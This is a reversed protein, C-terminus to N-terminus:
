IQNIITQTNALILDAKADIRDLRSCVADICNLPACVTDNSQQITFQQNLYVKRILSSIRFPCQDDDTAKRVGDCVDYMIEDITLNLQDIHQLLHSTFLSNRGNTSKDVAVTNADCAFGIFSGAVAGMITLGNSNSPKCVFTNRCCDLLFIAASPRCSMIKELTAHANIARCELDTNIKIRDDDIPILFNLHNWQCGHGAFFFLILDDPNIKYTFTKIMRDMQEYTLNTGVTIEFDIKHLKNALDEADNTCYKLQSNKKYKNNGILLARKTHILNNSSSFASAM